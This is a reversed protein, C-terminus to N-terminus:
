VYLRTAMSIFMAHSWALGVIWAPKMTENNIQEGLFGHESASKVVFDFCERAQKKQGAELYYNAMWLNAIVWPNYGGNYTDGDYRIYGGTYTRLTMNMREVTTLIKKEKPAFVKFPYVTGLISIDIRKDDVNRVFSKKTEDYFNDLIYQKIDRLRKEILKKHKEIAELKLRNNTFESKVENCIKFMADYAAFIACM